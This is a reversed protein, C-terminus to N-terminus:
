SHYVGGPNPESIQDYKTSATWMKERLFSSRRVVFIRFVPFIVISGYLVLHGPLVTIDAGDLHGM